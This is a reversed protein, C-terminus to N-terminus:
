RAGARPNGVGTMGGTVANSMNQIFQQQVAGIAEGRTQANAALAEGQRMSINSLDRGAGTAINALNNGQNGAIDALNQGQTRATNALNLATNGEVTSINSANNMTNASMLSAANQGAAAVTNLRSFRKDFEGSAIDQSYRLAERLAGGGYQNGTASQKRDLAQQGQQLNFNYDPSAFFKSLDGRLYGDRLATIAEEGVNAWPAISDNASALGAQLVGVSATRGAMLDARTQATGANIDARATTAGANVAATGVRQGEITAANSRTAAADTQAAADAATRRANRNGIVASAVAAVGMVAAVPM